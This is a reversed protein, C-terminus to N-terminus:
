LFKLAAGLPCQQYCWVWLLDPLNMLLNM